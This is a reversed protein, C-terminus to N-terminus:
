FSTHATSSFGRSPFFLVTVGIYSIYGTSIYGLTFLIDNMVVASFILYAILILLAGKRKMEHAKFLYLTLGLPLISILVFIISFFETFIRVPLILIFVSCGFVGIASNIFFSSVEKPFLSKIFMCMFIGILLVTFYIFRIYFDFDIDPFFIM